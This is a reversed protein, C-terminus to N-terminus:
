YGRCVRRGAYIWRRGILGARKLLEISLTSVPSGNLSYAEGRSVESHHSSVSYEDLSESAVQASVANGTVADLGGQFYLHEVQYAVAKKVLEADSSENTPKSCVSDIIDSAISELRIFESEDIATGHFTESYYQYNIYAM